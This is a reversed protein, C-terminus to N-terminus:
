EGRLLSKPDVRSARLAPVGSAAAAALLLLLCAGILVTPDQPSVRDLLSALSRGVWLSLLLGVGLGTVVPRLGVALVHAVVERGSAGLALRVGIERQRDSVFCSLVGGVGIAALLLAATGFLALLVTRFRPEALREHRLDELTGLDSIPVGADVERVARRAAPALARPDVQARIVVDLGLPGAPAQKWPVLLQDPSESGPGLIRADKFIGVIERRAGEAEIHAGLADRGPWWRRALSENILAVPPAQPGDTAALGRGRAVSVGLTALYGPLAARTEANPWEGPAPEPRGVIRFSNSSLDSGMPVKDVASVSVVGPLAGLRAVVRDYYGALAEPEPFSTHSPSLRFTLISDSRMGTETATIRWFSQALLGAVVLLVLCAAAEAALVLRRPDFRDGQETTSNRSIALGGRLDHRYLRLAPLLALGLSALLSVLLALALVSGDLGIQSARPLSDGALRVVLQSLWASLLVGLGGGALALVVQEGFLQGAIRLPSAGLASRMVIERRRQLLRGYNLNAINFCAVLLLLCSAAMMLPGAKRFSGTMEDLLPAAAIVLGANDQPHLEALEDGLRALEQRAAPLEVGPALRALAVDLSRQGRPWEAIELRLPLWLELQSGLGLKPVEFDAPLVGIITHDRGDVQLTSGVADRRGAFRRMWFSHSLVVVPEAELADEGRRFLRGASAEVGLLSFFSASVRGTWQREPEEQALVTAPLPDLLAMESFSRSARQWDLFNPLSVTQFRPGGNAPEQWLRVLREPEHYPPPELLVADVVGFITTTAAIGLAFTLLVTTVYGPRAALGRLSLRIDHLFSLM